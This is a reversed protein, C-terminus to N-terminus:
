ATVHVTFLSRLSNMARGGVGVGFGVGEGARVAGRGVDGPPRTGQCLIYVGEVQRHGM